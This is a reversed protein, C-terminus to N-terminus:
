KVDRERDRERERERERERWLCNIYGHLAGAYQSNNDYQYFVIKILTYKCLTNWVLIHSSNTTNVLFYLTRKDLCIFLQKLVLFIYSTKISVYLFTIDKLLKRTILISTLWCFNRRCHFFLFLNGYYM